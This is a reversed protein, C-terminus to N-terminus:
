NAVAAGDRRKLMAVDSQLTAVNGKLIAVDSKLAAVDSKLAGVEERLSNVDQRVERLDERLETFRRDMDQRVQRIGTMALTGVTASAAIVSVIISITEANM